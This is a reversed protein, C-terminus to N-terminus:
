LSPLRAVMNIVRSQTRESWEGEILKPLAENARAACPRGKQPADEGALCVPRKTRSTEFTDASIVRTVRERRAM